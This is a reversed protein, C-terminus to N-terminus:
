VERCSAMMSSVRTTYHTFVLTGVAAAFHTLNTIPHIERKKRHCQCFGSV